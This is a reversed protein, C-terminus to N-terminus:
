AVQRVVSVSTLVHIKRDSFVVRCEQYVCVVNKGYVSLLMKYEFLHQICRFIVETERKSKIWM